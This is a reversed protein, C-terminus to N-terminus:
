SAIVTSRNALPARSILFGNGCGITYIFIIQLDFLFSCVVWNAQIKNGKPMSSMWNDINMKYDSAKSDLKIKQQLFFNFPVQAGYKGDVIEGNEIQGYFRMVNPLTTYGESMM